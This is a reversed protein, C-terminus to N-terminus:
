SGFRELYRNIRRTRARARAISLELELERVRTLVKDRNLEKLRNVGVSALDEVSMAGSMRCIEGDLNTAYLRVGDLELILNQEQRRVGDLELMLGERTAVVREEIEMVGESLEESVGELELELEVIRLGTAREEAQEGKMGAVRAEERVEAAKAELNALTMAVADGGGIRNVKAERKAARVEQEMLLRAARREQEAKAMREARAIRKARERAPEGGVNGALEEELMMAEREEQARRDARAIREERARVHEEELRRILEERLKLKAIEEQLDVLYEEKRRQVDREKRAMREEKERERVAKKIKKGREVGAKKRLREREREAKLEQESQIKARCVDARLKQETRIRAEGEEEEARVMREVMARMEAKAKREERAKAQEENSIRILKEELMREAMEKDVLKAKEERKRERKREKEMEKEAIRMAKREVRMAKREVEGEVIVKRKARRVSFIEEGAVQLIKENELEMMREASEGDVRGQGIGSLGLELREGVVAPAVAPAEISAMLALMLEKNTAILFDTDCHGFDTGELGLTAISAMELERRRLLDGLIASIQSVMGLVISSQSTGYFMGRHLAQGPQMGLSLALDPPLMFGLDLGRATNHEPAGSAQGHTGWGAGEMMMVEPVSPEQWSTTANGVAAEPIPTLPPEISDMLAQIMEAKFDTHALVDGSGNVQATPVIGGVSGRHTLNGQENLLQMALDSIYSVWPTGYFMGRCLVQGPQMGLSLALDPPLIFGPEPVETGQRSVDPVQEAVVVDEVVVSKPASTAQGHATTDLGGVIVEPVVTTSIPSEVSDMLAQITAESSAILALISNGGSHQQRVSSSTGEGLELRVLEEHEDLLQMALGSIYPAQPTGHFMGRFLKEGPQMGLKQALHPALVFGGVEDNGGTSQEFELASSLQVQEDAGGQRDNGDLNVTKGNVGSLKRKM